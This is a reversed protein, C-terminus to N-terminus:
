QSTVTHVLPSSNTWTVTDGVHVSDRPVTLASCTSGYIGGSSGGSQSIALSRNLIGTAPAVVVITGALGACSPHFACHYNFTGATNFQHSYTGGGAALNGNLEPTAGGGVGGGTNGGYSPGTGSKCSVLWAALLLAAVALSLVATSRSM